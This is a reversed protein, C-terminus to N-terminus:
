KERNDSKLWKQAVYIKNLKDKIDENDQELHTYIQLTMKIDSHGLLKQATKIDVGAYYLNTAYDHRLIHPTLGIILKLDDNGGAAVNIKKLTYQWLKRLSSRTCINGDQTAFLCLGDLTQLYGRVFVHLVDPMPITRFGAVSKPMNKIEGTNKKFVVTKNVTVTGEELDIDGQTLALIEGRRLGAYKGFYVFARERDTLPAAEIATNEIDTLARKQAPKHTPKELDDAPNLYLLNNKIAKKFIQRLTLIIIEVTRTLGEAQKKNILAQLDNNKIKNLPLQAVDSTVIHNEVCTRYMEYTNYAVGQKYAKLWKESWEALTTKNDTIVIGKNQQSKFEVLKADLEKITKGYLSKLIRKGANDCGVTVRTRYRGDTNKKYKAM